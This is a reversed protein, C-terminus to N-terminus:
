QMLLRYLSGLGGTAMLCIGVTRAITDGRHVLPSSGNPRPFGVLSSPLPALEGRPIEMPPITPDKPKKKKWIRPVLCQLISIILSIFSEFKSM